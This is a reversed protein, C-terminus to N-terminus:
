DILVSVDERIRNILDSKVGIIRECAEVYCRWTRPGVFNTEGLSCRSSYRRTERHKWREDIMSVDM